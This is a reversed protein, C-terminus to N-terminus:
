ETVIIQGDMTTHGAGCFVNCFMRFTGAKGPVFEVVNVKGNDLTQSVGMDPIAIGHTGEIVTILLRVRQGKKVTVTAPNFEFNKVTMQIEVVEPSGSGPVPSQSGSAPTGSASPPIGTAPQQSGAAPPPSPAPSGVTDGPSAANQTCGFLLIGIALFAMWKLTCTEMQSRKM